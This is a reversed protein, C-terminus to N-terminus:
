GVSSGDEPDQDVVNNYARSGSKWHIIYNPNCLTSM